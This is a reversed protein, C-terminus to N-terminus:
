SVLSVCQCSVSLPINTFAGSHLGPLFHPLGAMGAHWSCSNGQERTPRETQGSWLVGAGTTHPVMPIFILTDANESSGPAKM